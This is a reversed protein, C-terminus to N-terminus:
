SQQRMRYFTIGIFLAVQGGFFGPWGWGLVFLALASIAISLGAWLVGWSREMQGARYFAIAFVAM